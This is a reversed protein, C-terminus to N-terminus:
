DLRCSYSLCACRLAFIFATLQPSFPTKIRECKGMADCLRTLTNDIEVQQYTTIQKGKIGQLPRQMCLLANTHTQEKVAYDEESL